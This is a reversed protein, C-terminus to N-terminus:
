NAMKLSLLQSASNYWPVTKESSKIPQQSTSCSVSDLNPRWFMKSGTKLAVEFHGTCCGISFQCSFHTKFVIKLRRKKNPPHLPFSHLQLEALRSIKGDNIPLSPVFKGVGGGGGGAGGYLVM